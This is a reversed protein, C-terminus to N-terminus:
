GVNHFISHCSRFTELIASLLSPFFRDHIRDRSVQDQESSNFARKWGRTRSFFLLQPLPPSTTTSANLLRKSIATFRRPDSHRTQLLCALPSRFGADGTRRARRTFSVRSHPLRPNCRFWLGAPFQVIFQAPDEHNELLSFPM